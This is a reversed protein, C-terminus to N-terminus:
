RTWSAVTVSHSQKWRLPQHSLSPFLDSLLFLLKVDHLSPSLPPFLYVLWALAFLM